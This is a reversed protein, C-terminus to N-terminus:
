KLFDFSQAQLAARALALERQKAAVLEAEIKEVVVEISWTRLVRLWFAFPTEPNEIEILDGPEGNPDPRPVREQWGYQQGYDACFSTLVQAFAEDNLDFSLNQDQYVATVKAM